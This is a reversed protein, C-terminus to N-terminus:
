ILRCAYSLYMIMNIQGRAWTPVYMRVYMAEPGNLQQSNHHDMRVQIRFDQMLKVLSSGLHDIQMGDPIEQIFVYIVHDDCSRSCWVYMCVYM